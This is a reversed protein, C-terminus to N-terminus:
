APRVHNYHKVREGAIIQAEKLSYFIEEVLLNERFTGNFNECFCNGWPSGPDIYATKVGIGSPWSRLDKAIFEPSNESRIYEPAGQIMM